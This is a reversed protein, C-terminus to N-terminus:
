AYMHSYAHIIHSYTFYKHTHSYAHMCTHITYAHHTPRSTHIHTYIMSTNSIYPGVQARKDVENLLEMVRKVLDAPSRIFPFSM